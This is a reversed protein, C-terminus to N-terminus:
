ICTADGGFLRLHDMRLVNTPFDSQNQCFGGKICQQIFYPWGKSCITKQLTGSGANNRYNCSAAPVKLWCEHKASCDVVMDLWASHGGQDLVVSNVEFSLSILCVRLSLMSLFAIAIAFLCALKNEILCRFIVISVTHM